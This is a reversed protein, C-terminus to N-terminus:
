GHSREEALLREGTEILWVLDGAAGPEGQAYAAQAQAMLARQMVVCRDLLDAHMASATPAPIRGAQFANVRPCEPAHHQGPTSGCASCPGPHSPKPSVAAEAEQQTIPPEPPAARGPAQAAVERGRRTPMLRDARLEVLAQRMLSEVARDVANNDSASGANCVVMLIERMVPRRTATFECELAVLVRHEMTTLTM